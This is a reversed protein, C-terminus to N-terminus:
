VLTEADGNRIKYAEYRDDLDYCELVAGGAFKLMLTGTGKTAAAVVINELLSFLITEVRPPRIVNAEEDVTARVSYGGEVTVMVKEDFHLYV